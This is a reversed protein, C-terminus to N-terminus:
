LRRNALRAKRRRGTKPRHVVLLDTRHPGALATRSPTGSARAGSRMPSAGALADFGVTRRRRASSARSSSTPWRFRGDRAGRSRPGSRALTRTRALVVAAGAEGLRAELADLWAPDRPGDTLLRMRERLAKEYAAAAAAHSPEAAFTLRDFFRRRETSGELFLRDQQPTMWVLRLIESLRSPAAPAGDIRVVRRSGGETGTGVQIDEGEDTLIRTAVAWPRGSREEPLRRGVDAASAGRLGKGPALYSVAELLNTKGAGNPGFLVVPGGDLALEAREYSRFDTLSLTRLVARSMLPVGPRRPGGRRPTPCTATVGEAADTCIARRPRRPRAGPHPARTASSSSPRSAQIQGAVDLLYRANFGIEFPEGDYDVDLEEVAQGAEMNRVTFVIRGAEVAMKVSRSKEASITAVRDVAQKFMGNDILVTKDNNKPIVRV